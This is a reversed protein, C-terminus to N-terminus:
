YLNNNNNNNNTISGKQQSNDTKLHRLGIRLRYSKMQPPDAQRLVRDARLVVCVSYICLYM